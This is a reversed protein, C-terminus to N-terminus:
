QKLALPLPTSLYVQSKELTYGDKTALESIRVLSAQTLIKENLLANEKKYNQISNQIKELDVGTTSIRNAVFVQVLSLMIIVFFIFFLFLVPKKM